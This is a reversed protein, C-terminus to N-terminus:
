GKANSYLTVITPLLMKLGTTVWWRDKDRIVDYYKLSSYPAGAKIAWLASLVVSKQEIICITLKYDHLFYPLNIKPKKYSNLVIIYITEVSLVPVSSASQYLKRQNASPKAKMIPIGGQRRTVKKEVALFFYGFFHRESVNKIRSSGLWKKVCWRLCYMRTSASILFIM